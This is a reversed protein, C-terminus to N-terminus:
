VSKGDGLHAIIVLLAFHTYVFGIAEQFALVVILIPFSLMPLVVLLIFPLLIILSFNLIHLLLIHIRIKHM